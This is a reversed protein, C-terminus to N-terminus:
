IGKLQLQKESIPVGFEFCCGYGDDPDSLRAFGQNVKAIDAVIKLGLGCGPGALEDQQNPSSTTFFANFIRYKINNAVGEGTDQFRITAFKNQKTATIKIRRQKSHSREM